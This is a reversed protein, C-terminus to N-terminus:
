GHTQGCKSCVRMDGVEDISVQNVTRKLASCSLSSHYRTGDDTIYVVGNESSGGCLECCYYKAGGDNRLSSLEDLPAEHVSLKLYTCDPDTHYVSGTETVYVYEAASDEEGDCDGEGASVIRGTWARIRARQLFFRGPLSVIGVPSRIQYSLVLDIMDDEHLFSSQAMNVSKVSSTDGAMSTIQSQAYVSTLATVAIEGVGDTEGGYKKLYAAVAMTKGTDSLATGFKVATEMVACYQMAAIMVFLFIPLVIAAEVTLAASLPTFLFARLRNRALVAFDPLSCIEKRHLSLDYKKILFM